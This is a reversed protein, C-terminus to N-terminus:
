RASDQRSRSAPLLTLLIAITGAAAAAFAVSSFDMRAENLRPLHFVRSQSALHVLFSALVLGLASGLAVLTANETLMQRFLRLPRAGLMTRLAFESRRRTSRALLLNTLNACSILLLM